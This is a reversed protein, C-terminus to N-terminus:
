ARQKKNYLVVSVAFFVAAMGLLVLINPVAASLSGGVALSEVAELAWKQPMANAIGLLVDSGVISLPWMCGGLMAMAVLIVPTGANLQEYTNFMTSLLLGFCTAALVFVGFVLLIPPLRDGFDLGFMMQGLVLVVCMQLAGVIFAPIFNGALVSSGSIPSIRIRNWTRLKKDELISGISFVISFTVFFVNFGMLYHVNTAAREKVGGSGPMTFSVKVAANDGTLSEYGERVDQASPAGIGAGALTDGLIRQLAYVHATRSAASQVVATFAMIDASDASKVLTIRANGTKLADGFGEPILIAALADGKSVSNEAEPQQAFMLSYANQGLADLFEDTAESSDSNVVAIRQAGEGAFSNGFVFSLVIAMLVMIVYMYSEYKMRTFKLWLVSKM